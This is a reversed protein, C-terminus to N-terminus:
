QSGPEMAGLRQLWSRALRAERSDPHERIVARLARIGAKRENLEILAYGKKLKAAATKYSNPYGTLVRDYDAIAQQFDKQRYYTEGIYFRANGALLTEPYYKLYDTFQQRALDYKGTTFDRLAADYLAQASPPASPTAAPAGAPEAPIGEMAPPPQSLRADVSQLVNRTEALQESLKAMRVNMEDLSDRLAQVQTALSDLRADANARSEKLSRELHSVSTSMRNVADVAQEVLTKLVATRDDLSRQLDRVQEQLMQVNVQLQIIEKKQAAAPAAWLLCVAGATLLVASKKRM